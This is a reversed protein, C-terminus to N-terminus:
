ICIRVLRTRTQRAWNGWVRLLLDLNKRPEITGLAVFYPHTLNLGAPLRGPDATALDVGLPAVLVPQLVCGHRRVSNATFASPCMILDSFRRSADFAKAFRVPAGPGSWERHDLPITDHIMVVAKAGGDSRVQKLTAEDLNVHGVSLWVAGTPAVRRIWRGLSQPRLRAVAIDRLASELAPTRRSRALFGHGLHRPPCPHPGTSGPLFKRVM